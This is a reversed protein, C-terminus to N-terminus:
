LAADASLSQHISEPESYRQLREGSALLLSAVIRASARLLHPRGNRQAISRHQALRVQDQYQEHAVLQQLHVNM